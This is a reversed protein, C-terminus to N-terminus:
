HRKWSNIFRKRKYTRYKKNCIRPARYLKASIVMTVMNTEFDDNVWRWKISKAIKIM